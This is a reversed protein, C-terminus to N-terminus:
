TFLYFGLEKGIDETQLFKTGLDSNNVSVVKVKKEILSRHSDDLRFQVKLITGIAIPKDMNIKLKMGTHSIDCVTMIEHHNNKEDSVISYKGPLNTTKRFKKRRDLMAVYENGCSCTV